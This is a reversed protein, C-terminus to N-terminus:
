AAIKVCASTIGYHSYEYAPFGETQPLDVAEVIYICGEAYDSSIGRIIARFEGPTKEGLSHILVETGEAFYTMKGNERTSTITDTARGM